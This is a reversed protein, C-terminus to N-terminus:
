IKVLFFNNNDFSNCLKFKQTDYIEQWITISFQIIKIIKNNKCDVISFFFINFYRLCFLIKKERM